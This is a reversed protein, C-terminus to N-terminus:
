LLWILKNNCNIIFVSHSTELFVTSQKELIEINGSIFNLSVSLNAPFLILQNGLPGTILHNIIIIACCLSMLYIM